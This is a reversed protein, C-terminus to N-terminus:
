QTLRVVIDQAVARFVDDLQAASPALYAKGQPQSASVIGNENAIRRLFDM